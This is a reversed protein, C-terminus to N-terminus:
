LGRFDSIGRLLAVAVIFGTEISVICLKLLSIIEWDRFGCLTHLLIPVLMSENKWRMNLCPVSFQLDHQVFVHMYCVYNSM